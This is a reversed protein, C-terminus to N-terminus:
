IYMAFYKAAIAEEKLKQVEKRAERKTMQQNSKWCGNVCVAYRTLRRGDSMKVIVKDISYWKNRDIRGTEVSGVNSLCIASVVMSM